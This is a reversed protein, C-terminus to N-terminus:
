FFDKGQYEPKSMSLIDHHESPPNKAKPQFKLKIKSSLTKSGQSAISNEQMFSPKGISSLTLDQAQQISMGGEFGFKTGDNINVMESQLGEDFVGPRDDHARVACKVGIAQEAELADNHKVAM